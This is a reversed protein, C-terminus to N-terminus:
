IETELTTLVRGEALVSVRVIAKRRSANSRVKTGDLAVQGLKVLGARKCLLLVQVFLDRFAALHRKRFRVISRFDPGEARDTPPIGQEHWLKLYSALETRASLALHHVDDMMIINFAQLWKQVDDLAPAVDFEAGL